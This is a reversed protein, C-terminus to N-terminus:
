FFAVIQAANTDTSNIRIFRCAYQAGAVAPWIVPDADESHVIAVDGSTGVMFGSATESLNTTDSKSVVESRDPIGTRAFM